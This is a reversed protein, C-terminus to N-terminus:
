KVAAAPAAPAPTSAPRVPLGRQLLLEKAREIPLRVVQNGQDIWGYTHLQHEEQDRFAKLVTPEDVNLGPQPPTALGTAVRGDKVAPMEAAAALPASVGAEVRHPVLVFKFMGWVFVECFVVTAVLVVVFWFLGAYHVGDGEVPVAAPAHPHKTDAM